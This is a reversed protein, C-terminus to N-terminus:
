KIGTKSFFLRKKLITARKKSVGMLTAWSFPIPILSYPCSLIVSRLTRRFAVLAQGFRSCWSNRLFFLLRPTHRPKHRKGMKERKRTKGDRWRDHRRHVRRRWTPKEDHHSRSSPNEFRFAAQTCQAQIFGGSKDPKHRNIWNIRHLSVFRIM